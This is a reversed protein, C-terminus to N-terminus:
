PDGAGRARAPVPRRVLLALVARAALALVGRVVLALVGHVSLAVVARVFVSSPVRLGGGADLSRSASGM